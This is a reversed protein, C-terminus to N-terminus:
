EEKKDKKEQVPKGLSHKGQRDAQKKKKGNEASMGLVNKVLERARPVEEDHIRFVCATKEKPRTFFFKQLIGKEEWHVCYSIRNKLLIKEIKEKTELDYVKCFDVENNVPRATLVNGEM